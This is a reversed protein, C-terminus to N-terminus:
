FSNPYVGEPTAHDSKKKKQTRSGQVMYMCIQYFFVGSQPTRISLLARATPYVQTLLLLGTNPTFRNTMVTACSVGTYVGVPAVPRKRWTPPIRNGEGHQEPLRVM